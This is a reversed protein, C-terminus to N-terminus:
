QEKVIKYTIVGKSTELSLFYIGQKFSSMNYEFSNDFIYSQIQKEESIMKGNLDFIKFSYCVYNKNLDLKIHNTTPNPFIESEVDKKNIIVSNTLSDAKLVKINGYGSCVLYRDLRDICVIGGDYDYDKNLEQIINKKVLDYFTIKGLINGNLFYSSGFILISKLNSFIIDGINLCDINPIDILSKTQIDWIRVKGDQSGTALVNANPSFTIGNILDNHQPYLINNVDYLWTKTDFLQVDYGGLGKVSTALYKEDPSFQVIVRDSYGNNISRISNNNGINYINISFESKDQIDLRDTRYGIAIINLLPSVSVSEIFKKRPLGHISDKLIIDTYFYVQQKSAVDWQILSDGITLFLYDKGNIEAVAKLSGLHKSFFEAGTQIDYIHVNASESSVAIQTDHNIFGVHNVGGENSLDRTWLTDQLIKSFAFHNFLGCVFLYLLIFIYRM